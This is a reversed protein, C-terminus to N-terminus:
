SYNEAIKTVNIIRKTNGKGTEFLINIRQLYRAYYLLIFFIDSDPSRVRAYKFGKKRDCKGCLVVRTDMEEQTSKLSAIKGCKTQEEEFSIKCAEGEWVLVVVRDKIIEKFFDSSWVALLVEILQKKNEDNTLFSKWEKPKKTNEGGVILKPTSGRRLREVAKM